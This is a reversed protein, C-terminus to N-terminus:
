QAAQQECEANVPSFVSCVAISRLRKAAIDAAARRLEDADLPSRPRRM